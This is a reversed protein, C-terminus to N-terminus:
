PMGGVRVKYRWTGPLAAAPVLSLDKTPVRVFREVQQVSVVESLFTCDTYCALALDHLGCM